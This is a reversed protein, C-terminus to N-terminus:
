NPDDELMFFLRLMEDTVMVGRLDKFMIVKSRDIAFLEVDAEVVM